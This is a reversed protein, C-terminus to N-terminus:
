GSAFREAALQALGKLDLKGSGLLPLAEVELFSDQSPIWLNPLDIARLHDAIEAPTKTMPLHVVILREGKKEDPVATVVAVQHEADDGAVFDQIAEEIRVHPVMEGGIKSFRSQRGTIHIFGQEDIRAIDGTVYWGDRVVEATKEPQDLYGVMRNPGAVELMGDEDVGLLERTEPHVVRASVGPLPLGISGECADPRKGSSRNPPINVAAVPALETAGYGESPRVGFRAEFADSLAIPLKEAGVIAMELSAFDEPPVRKIYSRLFTPTSLLITAGSAQCLKGVQRADLPNFHYAGGLDLVLPAWLTVTYGFAHFFPLIGLIVDDARLNVASDFSRINAVLNRHSLMVGKPIGTSGSTFIITVLDDLQLTTLGLQQELLGIPAVYAAAASALKDMTTVKDRLSELLVVGADITIGLKDLVKQTTLVHRIGAARVCANIVEASASYNLNVAVRKALSLAANVVVAGNAPPLLVGVRQEDPGIVHRLLLRRLVLSKTLLEGGTLKDGTSDILKRRRSARRCARLMLRPLPMADTLDLEPATTEARKTM